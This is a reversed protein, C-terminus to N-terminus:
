KDKQRFGVKKRPEPNKHKELLEDLYKFVVEINKDQRDKKNDSM